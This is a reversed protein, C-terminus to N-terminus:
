TVRSDCFLMTDRACLLLGNLRSIRVRLNLAGTFLYCSMRTYLLGSAQATIIACLLLLYSFFLSSLASIWTWLHPTHLRSPRGTCIPPTAFVLRSRLTSYSLLSHLSCVMSYEKLSDHVHRDVRSPNAPMRPLQASASGSGAGLGTADGAAGPGGAGVGVRGELPDATSIQKGPNQRALEAEAQSTFVCCSYVLVHVYQLSLLSSPSSTPAELVKKREKELLKFQECCEELRTHLENAAESRSKNSQHRSADKMGGGGGAHSSRGAQQQQNRGAGAGAQSQFQSQAASPYARSAVPVSGATTPMVNLNFGAINPPLVPGVGPPVSGSVPMPIPVPMPMPMGQLPAAAFSGTTLALLNLGLLYQQLDFPGSPTPLSTNLLAALQTYYIALQEPSLGVPVFMGAPPLMPPLPQQVSGTATTATTAGSRDVALPCTLPKLTALAPVGSGKNNNKSNGGAASSSASALPTVPAAAAATPARAKYGGSSVPAASQQEAPKLLSAALTAASPVFEPASARPRGFTSAATSTSTSSSQRSLVTDMDSNQPKLSSRTPTLTLEDMYEGAPSMTAAMVLPSTKHAAALQQQQQQEGGIPGNWSDAHHRQSRAASASTREDALPTLLENAASATDSACSDSILSSSHRGDEENAEDFLYTPLLRSNWVGTRARPTPAGLEFRESPRQQSRLRSASPDAAQTPTTESSLSSSYHYSDFPDTEGSLDRALMSRDRPLPVPPPARSANNNHFSGLRTNRAGADFAGLGANAYFATNVPTSGLEDLSRYGLDQSGFSARGSMSERRLLENPTSLPSQDAAAEELGELNLHLPGTSAMPFAGIGAGVGASCVQSSESGEHDSERAECAFELDSPARLSRGFLSGGALNFSEDLGHRVVRSM